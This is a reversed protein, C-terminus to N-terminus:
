GLSRGWPYGYGDPSVLDWWLTMQAALSPRLADLIDQRQITEAAEYVYRAYENSYRDYRGATGADDAYLAGRTFPEAARDLLANVFARDDIVGVQWSLTAV